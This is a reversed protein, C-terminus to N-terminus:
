NATLRDRVPQTAPVLPMYGGGVGPPGIPTKTIGNPDTLWKTIADINRRYAAAELAATIQKGYSDFNLIGAATRASSPVQALKHLYEDNFATMSGPAERKGTARLTTLLNDLGTVNQQGNPLANVGARLTAAQEPHGALSVAVKAGGWQNEGTQLDRTATNATNMIHQRTLAPPITPDTAGLLRVATGTESPAGEIPRAPYLAATQEPVSATGSITGVPGSTVPDVLGRTFQQYKTKGALFAPSHTEMLNDLNDLHTSLASATEKPLADAAIDPLGIQDRHFKRLRDLNAIDTTPIGNPALRDLFPQLGKALLGTKDGAIDNGVADVVDQVDSTPVTQTGAAKYLPTVAKTRAAALRQVADLAAKQANVGILSPNPDAPAITDAFSKIAGSVQQPRQAFFPALQAGGRQTGEVVRQMRSLGTSGGTAQQIAEAKTLSVGQAAANRMITDAASLDAPTVSAAARGIATKPGAAMASGVGAVGMGAIAAGTRAWPEFPTGQTLEGAAESAAGPIVASLVKPLVGEPAIAAPAFSAISSAFKGARTQPQYYPGTYKQIFANVDESRPLSVGPLIERPNPDKFDIGFVGLGAREGKAALDLLDGPAGALGGVGRQLGSLVSPGIDQLPTVEPHAIDAYADSGATTLPADKLSPALVQVPAVQTDDAHAIDAYPDTV